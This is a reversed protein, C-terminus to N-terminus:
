TSRGRKKLATQESRRDVKRERSSEEVDKHGRAKPSQMALGADRIRAGLTLARDPWKKFEEELEFNREEDDNKNVATTDLWALWALLHASGVLKGREMRKVADVSVNALKAAEDQTLDTLQRLYKLWTGFSEAPKFTTSADRTPVIAIRADPDRATLVSLDARDSM